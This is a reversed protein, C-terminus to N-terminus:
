RFAALVETFQKTEDPFYHSNLIDEVTHLADNEQSSLASGGVRQQKRLSCLFVTRKNTKFHLLDPSESEFSM